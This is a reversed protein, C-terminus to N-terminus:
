PASPLFEDAGAAPAPARPASRAPPPAPTAIPGPAPPAPPKARRHRRTPWRRHKPRRVPARRTSTGSGRVPTGRPRFEGGGAASSHATPPTSVPEAAAPPLAPPEGELHPWAVVLAVAALVVAARVVNAWRIRHLLDSEM